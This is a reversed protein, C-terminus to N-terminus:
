NHSYKDSKKNNNTINCKNMESIKRGTFYIGLMKLLISSHFVSFAKSCGEKNIKLTIYKTMM